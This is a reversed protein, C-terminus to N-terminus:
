GSTASAQVGWGMGCAYGPEGEKVKPMNTHAVACFKTTGLRHPILGCEAGGPCLDESEDESLDSDTEEFVVSPSQTLWTAWPQSLQTETFNPNISAM